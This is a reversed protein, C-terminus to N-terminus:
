STITVDAYAARISVIGSVTTIKGELDSKQIEEESFSRLDVMTKTIAPM